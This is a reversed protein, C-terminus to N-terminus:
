QEENYGPPMVPERENGRSSLGEHSRRGRRRRQLYHYCPISCVIWLLLALGANVQECVKLLVGSIIVVACGIWLWQVLKRPMKFRFLIRLALLLFLLSIIYSGMLEM